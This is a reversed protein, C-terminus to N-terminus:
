EEINEKFESSKPLSAPCAGRKREDYEICAARFPTANARGCNMCTIIVGKNDRIATKDVGRGVDYWGKKKESM